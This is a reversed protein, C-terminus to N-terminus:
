RMTAVRAALLAAHKRLLAAAGAMCQSADLGPEADRLSVLEDFCAELAPRSEPDVRGGFAVIRKGSRRALSAVGAPTKGHLTQYDLSGEGTLVLDARAVASPLGLADSVLEFGPRLEAHCFTMLGFGLGGAAGAGPLDRYDRGLTQAAVDALRTLAAELQRAEDEGRLGKQPGYVRTAGYPGLLPNSVDCAVIMPVSSAPGYPPQIRALAALEVPFSPLSKDEADFFQWGLAAAMGMGGDNTASGGIGVIIRDAHSEDLAHFLLQGTGFTNAVLLDREAEPVLLFGSASSMEIVALREGGHEVLAYRAEVTPYVMPGDVIVHVWRGGLANLFAEATGEGGDALPLCEITLPRELPWGDRWGAALAEAAEAATLSGKFKDPAILVRM